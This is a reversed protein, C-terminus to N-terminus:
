SYSFTLLIFSWEQFLMMQLLLIDRVLTRFQHNFVKILFIIMSEYFLYDIVWLYDFYHLFLYYMFHVKPHFCYLIYLALILNAEVILHQNICILLLISFHIFQLAFNCYIILKFHIFQFYYFWWSILFLLLIIINYINIITYFDSCGVFYVLILM